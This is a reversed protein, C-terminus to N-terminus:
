RVNSQHLRHAGGWGREKGKEITAMIVKLLEGAEEKCSCELNTQFLPLPTQPNYFRQKGSNGVGRRQNQNQRLVVDSSSGVIHVIEEDTDVHIVSDLTIEAEINWDLDAPVGRFEPQGLNVLSPCSVILILRETIIVFKDKQKLPKSLILTEDKLMLSDDADSLVSVGVAEEWLYPRLPYDRSLPRPLRVRLRQSGMHYLKSRNRISRATKETVELISAAPRAVLGTVGLAFGAM